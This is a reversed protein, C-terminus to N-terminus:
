KLAALQKSNLFWSLSMQNPQGELLAIGSKKFLFSTELRGSLLLSALNSLEPQHGVFAYTKQPDLKSILRQLELALKGPNLFDIIELRSLPFGKALLEATQLSRIYESSHIVDINEILKMLGITVDAFRFIGKKTLPRLEDPKGLQNWNAREEAHAHRILLIKM